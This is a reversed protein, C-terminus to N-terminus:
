SALRQELVTDYLRLMQGDVAQRDFRGTSRSRARVGFDRLRKPDDLMGRLTRTFRREDGPEVLRGTQGDAVVSEAAATRWAVVPVSMAQARMAEVSVRGEIRPRAFLDLARYFAPDDAGDVVELDGDRQRARLRELYAESVEGHPAVVWGVGGRGALRDVLRLLALGGRDPRLPGAYGVVHRWRDRLGFQERAERETPVEEADPNYRDVDIGAGGVIVELKRAPMWDARELFDFERETTVVYRDVREACQRYLFSRGAEFAPEVLPGIRGELREVLAPFTLRADVAGAEWGNRRGAGLTHDELTAFIAPTGVRRAALAALWAVPGDFGHLLVPQQEILHAQLIFFAGVLGPVNRPDAVPLSRGVVGRKDLRALGGDPAALVHVEFGTEVLKELREGFDREVRASSRAVYIARYPEGNDPQDDTTDRQFVAECGTAQPADDVLM